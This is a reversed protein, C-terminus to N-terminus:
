AAIVTDWSGAPEQERVTIRIGSNHHRRSHHSHRSSPSSSPEVYHARVGQVTATTRVGKNVFRAEQRHFVVGLSVFVLGPVLFLAGMAIMVTRNMSQPRPNGWSDTETPLADLLPPQAARPPVAAAPAAAVQEAVHAAGSLAFDDDFVAFM